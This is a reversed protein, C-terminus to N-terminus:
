YKKPINKYDRLYDVENMPKAGVIKTGVYPKLGDIEIVKNEM